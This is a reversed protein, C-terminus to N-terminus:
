MTSYVQEDDNEDNNEDDFGGFHSAQVIEGDIQGAILRFSPFIDGHHTM